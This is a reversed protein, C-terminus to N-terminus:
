PKEEWDYSEQAGRGQVAKAGATNGREASSRLDGGAALEAALTGVFCDGAGTTDVVDVKEGDCTFSLTDPAAVVAGAGGLTIVVSAVGVAVLDEALRAAAATDVPAAADPGDPGDPGDAVAGLTRAAALAEHENVVLPDAARLTAPDLDVVPALNVVVRAGARRAGAVTADVVDVPIEGQVVVVDDATLDLDAVDDHGVKANAGSIVIISNEGADSVTILALGTPSGAVERVRTLDVGARRLLSVGVEAQADDGVCGVMVVAAGALAAAVAQNAGKGGPRTSGDGGLVTEGPLPHRAVRAFLDVNISGVVVVRGGGAKTTATTM